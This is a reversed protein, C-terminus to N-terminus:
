TIKKLHFDFYQNVDFTLESCLLLFKLTPVSGKGLYVFLVNHSSVGMKQSLQGPMWQQCSEFLATVIQVDNRCVEIM